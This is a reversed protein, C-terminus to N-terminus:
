KEITLIGTFGTVEFVENVTDNVHIIKMDAGPTANITKQTKLLVRLGASSVYDLAAFDFILHTAGGLDELAKELDPATVSDLRGELTITLTDAQKSQTLKM